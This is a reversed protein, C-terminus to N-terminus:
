PQYTPTLTKKTETDFTNQILMYKTKTIQIYVNQKFSCDYSLQFINNAAHNKSLVINNKM